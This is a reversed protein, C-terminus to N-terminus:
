DLSWALWSLVPQGTDSWYLGTEPVDMRGEAEENMERELQETPVNAPRKFRRDYEAHTEPPASDTLSADQEVEMDVVPPDAREPLTTPVTAEPEVHPVARERELREEESVAADLATRSGGGTRKKFEEM